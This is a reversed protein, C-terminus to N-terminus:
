KRGNKKEDKKILDGLVDIFTNITKNENKIEKDYAKKAFDTKQRKRETQLIWKVNQGKSLVNKCMEKTPHKMKGEHILKELYHSFGMVHQVVEKDTM